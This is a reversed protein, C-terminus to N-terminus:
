DTVSEMDVVLFSGLFMVVLTITEAAPAMEEIWANNVQRCLPCTVDLDQQVRTQVWGKLCDRHFLHHCASSFPVVNGGGSPFSEQCVACEGDGAGEQRTSSAVDDAGVRNRMAKTKTKTTKNPQKSTRKALPTRVCPPSTGPNNAPITLHFFSSHSDQFEDDPEHIFPHTWLPRQLNRSARGCRSLFLGCFFLNFGSGNLCIDTTRKKKRTMHL